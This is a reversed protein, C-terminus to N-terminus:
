CTKKYESKKGRTTRKTNVILDRKKECLEYQPADALIFDVLSLEGSLEHSGTEEGLYTHVNIYTYTRFTCMRIYTYTHIYTYSSQARESEKV